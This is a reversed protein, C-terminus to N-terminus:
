GSKRLHMKERKSDYAKERYQGIFRKKHEVHYVRFVDRDPDPLIMTFYQACHHADGERIFKGVMMEDGMPISNHIFYQQCTVIYPFSLRKGKAM